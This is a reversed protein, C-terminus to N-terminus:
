HKEFISSFNKKKFKYKNFNSNQSQLDFNYEMIKKEIDKMNYFSKDDIYNIPTKNLKLSKLYEHSCYEFYPCELLAPIWSSSNNVIIVLDSNISCEVVHDYTFEFNITKDSFETINKKFNSMSMSPHIKIRIEMDKNKKNLAMLIQFLDKFLLNKEGYIKGLIISIIKNKKIKKYFNKFIFNKWESSQYPHGILIHNLFNLNKTYHNKESQHSLLVLHYKFINAFDQPKLYSYVQVAHPYLLTKKKFFNCLFSFFKSSTTSFSKEFFIFKSKYLNYLILPVNWILILINFILYISKTDFFNINLYEIKFEEFCKKYFNSKKFNEYVKLNFFIAKIKINKKKLHSLLPLIYDIEGTHTSIIWLVQM